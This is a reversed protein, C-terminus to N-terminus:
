PTYRKDNYSEEAERRLSKAKLEYLEAIMLKVGDVTTHHDRRWPAVLHSISGLMASRRRLDDLNYEEKM